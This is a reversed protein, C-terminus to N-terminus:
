VNQWHDYLDVSCLWSICLAICICCVGAFTDAPRRAMEALHFLPYAGMWRLAHFGSLTLIPALCFLMAGVFMASLPNELRDSLWFLMLMMSLCAILRGALGYFLVAILPIWAPVSHYAPLSMAPAFLQCLCFDRLVVVLRPLWTLLCIGVAGISGALLKCIVTHQRGLPTALIVRQMGSERELAFLGSFCISSLLGAWLADQMDGSGHFGFLKEWGREYVLHAKPNEQIYSLNGYVINQLIKYKEPMGTFATMQEYYQEDTIEKQQYARMLGFMPDFAHQMEQLKDYTKRTYPGELQKMYCAYYIGEEHLYYETQKVQWTQYGAFCVLVLLVGGLVFLKQTEQRFVTTPQTKVNKRSFVSLAPATRLQARCFLLCFGGILLGGYLLAAFWEVFPLGVSTGFWYLNRYNGLLENTHMLSSLNAYKLVNFRSTAPIATRVLWHMLPLALSVLWGIVTHKAWLMALMVWLGTVFSGAWKALLFYGLYEGVTIQMTCRMLAPVSQISRTLPGLGFTLSCYILNVGYMVMLVVFMSLALTILKAAATKLRGGPTSRVVHLMGSDREQRVLLSTLLLMAALLIWDTFPYDLATILGKQPAYQIPVQKMGAYVKATKHINKQNYGDSNERFISIGSLQAAKSQVEQLFAPYNAVANLETQIQTLLQVDTQLSDTYLKYDRQRYVTEYQDFLEAYEKRLQAGWEPAEASETLMQAVQWVGSVQDLKEAILAQQEETSHNLLDESVARYADAPVRKQGPKTGLYLFLLNVATLVTLCLVFLRQRWVKYIEPFLLRM